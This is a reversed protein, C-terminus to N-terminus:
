QDGGQAYPLTRGFGPSLFRDHRHDVDATNRALTWRWYTSELADAAFWVVRFAVTLTVLTVILWDRTSANMWWPRRRM